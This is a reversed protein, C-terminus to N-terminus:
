TQVMICVAAFHLAGALVVLVHFVQLLLMINLKIHAGTASTHLLLEHLIAHSM